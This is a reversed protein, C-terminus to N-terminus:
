EFTPYPIESFHIRDHFSLAAIASRATLLHDGAGRRGGGRWAGAAATCHVGSRLRREPSLLSPWRLNTTRARRPGRARTPSHLGACAEVLIRALARRRLSPATNARSLGASRPAVARHSAPERDLAHRLGHAWPPRWRPARRRPSRPRGTGHGLRESRPSRRRRWRAVCKPAHNVVVACPVVGDGDAERVCARRQRGSKANGKRVKLAAPGAPFPFQDTRPPPNDVGGGM